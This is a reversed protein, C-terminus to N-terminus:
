MCDNRATRPKQALHPTLIDLSKLHTFNPVHYRLYDEILARIDRNVQKPISLSPIHETEANMIDALAVRTEPLWTRLNEGTCNACIPGGEAPSFWRFREASAGCAACEKIQIGYGIDAILQLTGWWLWNVATRDNSTDLGRLAHSLHAYASPNEEREATVRSALECLAQALAIRVFSAKLSSFYERVEASRVHALSEASSALVIESETIPELAPGTGGKSRRAGRSIAGIRGLQPTMLTVIQSTEAWDKRSLVIADTTLLEAM